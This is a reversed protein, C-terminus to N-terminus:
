SGTRIWGYYLLEKVASLYQHWALREDIIDSSYGGGTEKPGARLQWIYGLGAHPARSLDAYVQDYCMGNVCLQPAPITWRARMMKWDNM